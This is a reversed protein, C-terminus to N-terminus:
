IVRTTGPMAIPYHGSADPKASDPPPSDLTFNAIGPALEITSAIADDWTIMQGSECAMRAMIATM